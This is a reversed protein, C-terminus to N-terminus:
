LTRECVGTPEKYSDKYLENNLGKIHIEVRELLSKVYMLNVIPVGYLYGCLLASSVKDTFLLPKNPPSKIRYGRTMGYAAMMGHFSWFVKTGSINNM